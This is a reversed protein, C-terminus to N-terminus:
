ACFDFSNVTDEIIKQVVTHSPLSFKCDVGQSKEVALALLPHDGKNKKVTDGFTNATFYHYSNGNFQM